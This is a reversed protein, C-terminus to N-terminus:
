IPNRCLGRGPHGSDDLAKGGLPSKAQKRPYTVVWALLPKSGLDWEKLRGWKELAGRAHCYDSEDNFNLRRWSPPFTSVSIGKTSLM